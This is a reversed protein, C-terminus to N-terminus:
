IETTFDYTPALVTKAQKLVMKKKKAFNKVYKVTRLEPQIQIFDIVIVFYM